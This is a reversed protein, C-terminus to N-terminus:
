REPVVVLSTDILLQGTSEDRLDWNFFHYSLGPILGKLQVRGDGDTRLSRRAFVIEYEDVVPEMQVEIDRHPTGEGDNLVVTGTTTPELTVSLGSYETADAPIAHESVGAYAGNSTLAYLAVTRGTPVGELDFNGNEPNVQVYPPTYGTSTATKYRGASVFVTVDGFAYEGKEVRGHASILTGAIPPATLVVDMEAGDAEFTLPQRGDEQIVYVGDPPSQFYMEVEGPQATFTFVGNADTFGEVREELYTGFLRAGAVPEGSDPWVVSCHVVTGELLTLDFNDLVDGPELQIHQAPMTHTDDKVFVSYTGDGTQGSGWVSMDWGNAPLGTFTYRGQSDTRTLRPSHMWEANCRVLADPVPVGSATLVRGSVSAGKTLVMTCDRIPSWSPAYGPKAAYFSCRTDPLNEFTAKGDMNTFASILGVDTTNTNFAHRFLPHASENDGAACLWVHAGELPKKERDVVTITGTTGKTVVIDYTEQPTDQDVTTWGLAYDPHFAFLLFRDQAYAHPLQRAFGPNASLAYRGDADATTREVITDDLGSRNMNHFLVVEAGAVPLGAEDVVRGGPGSETATSRVPLVAAAAPEPAEPPVPPQIPAPAGSQAATGVIAPAAVPDAATAPLERQSAVYALALICSGALAPLVLTKILPLSGGKAGLANSGAVGAANASQWAVPAALVMGMISAKGKKSPAEAQFSDGLEQLLATGLTERARQLRKKVADRRIDLRQAIEATSLGRFYHLLVVERLSPDLGGVHSRLLSHLEHRELDPNVSSELPTDDLGTQERKRLTLYHMCTNRVITLFWPCFKGADRLSDLSKFAKLFSDQVADEADTRDALYARALAYADILYRDVLKGFQEKDGGLVQRVVQGDHSRQGIWM